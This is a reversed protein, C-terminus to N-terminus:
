ALEAEAAAARSRREALPQRLRELWVPALVAFAGAADAIVDGLEADRGDILQLVEIASGAFTALMVIDLRRRRPFASFALLTVGYFAIFHAAKDWPVLAHEVGRFPGVMGIACVLGAALLLWRATTQVRRSGEM